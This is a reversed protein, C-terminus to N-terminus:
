GNNKGKVPQCCHPCLDGGPAKVSNFYRKGCSLCLQADVAFFEVVRVVDRDNIDHGYQLQLEHRLNEVSKFGTRALEFPNITEFHIVSVKEIVVKIEYPPVLDCYLVSEELNPTNKSVRVIATAGKLVKDFHNGKLRFRQM